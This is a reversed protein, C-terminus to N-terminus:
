ANFVAPECGQVRTLSDPLFPRLSRLKLLSGLLANYVGLKLGNQQATDCQAGTRSRTLSM